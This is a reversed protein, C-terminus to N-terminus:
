KTNIAKTLLYSKLKQATRAAIIKGLEKFNISSYDDSISLIHESLVDKMLYRYLVPMLEMGITNDSDKFYLVAKEFRRDNLYQDAIKIENEKLQKKPQGSEGFVARNKEKFDDTVLKAWLVRNYKNLKNYCKIVVGEDPKGSVRYPSQKILEYLDGITIDKGHKEFHVHIFSIGIAEFSAKAKRWPYFQMTNLDLIDYGVTDPINDYQITHKQLSESYYIVDPIFNEKYNEFAKKYSRIAIWQNINTDDPLINNRSGYILKCQEPIYRCRFSGGDIKSEVVVLENLIGENEDDGIAHIKPFKILSEKGIGQIQTM